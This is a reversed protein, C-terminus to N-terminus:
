VSLDADYVRFYRFAAVNQTAAGWNTVWLGMHTPTFTRSFTTLSFDVWAEGDPSVALEFTNAASWVWRLFVESYNTPTTGATTVNSTAATLTGSPVSLGTAGATTMPGFAAINSTAATGDTFILGAGNNAEARFAETIICTEITCPMGAAPVAKLTAAIDASAVSVFKASLGGRSAAWTVTGTPAQETYGTYATFFDDSAHATEGALRGMKYKETAPIWDYLGQITTRVDAASIDGSTNDNILALMAALSTPM